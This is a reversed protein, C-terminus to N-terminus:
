SHTPLLVRDGQASTHSLRVIHPTIIMILSDRTRDTTKNTGLTFGPIESLFPLGILSHSEQESLLSFLVTKEGPKVNLISNSERNNIIPNSNLTQGSLSSLQLRLKLSIGRGQEVRTTATLTLGIDQYQVQPVSASAASTLSALNVGLNQLTNSLGASTIGAISTSGTALNSYSSTVIPYREGIKITGEEQDLLRLQIKDLMRTESTALLANASGSALTLGTTTIGGGFYAFPQSLLTTGAQGSLVLALAIEEINGPSALGSSIIEQVLTPNSSILSNVESTVNFISTTQPLQVGENAMRESQVEYVDVDLMTESRGALLENVEHNFARMRLGPARVTLTNSSEHVNAQTAEFVNKAINGVDSLEATTLGPLYITEFAEREYKTRNEKTDLALLARQPDLPVLFTNTALTVMQEAQAYTVDDADFHVRDGGAGTVSADVTPAVGYASLVQKLVESRSLLLHFSQTDGKPALEVLPGADSRAPQLTAPERSANDDALDHQHEIVLPNRSDQEAAARLRARWTADDGKLRAKLGEQMLQTAYNDRAIALAAEDDANSPDLAAAKGFNEAALDLRKDEIAKAGELYFHRARERDRASAPKPANPPMAPSQSRVGGAAALIQNAATVATQSTAAQPPAPASVAESQTQPQATLATGLLCCAVLAGTAPRM